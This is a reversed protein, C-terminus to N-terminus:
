VEYETHYCSSRWWCSQSVKQIGSSQRACYYEQGAMHPNKNSRTDAGQRLAAMSLVWADEKKGTKRDRQQARYHKTPVESGDEVSSVHPRQSRLGSIACMSAQRLSLLCLLVSCASGSQTWPRFCRRGYRVCLPFPKEEPIVKKLLKKDCCVVKYWM